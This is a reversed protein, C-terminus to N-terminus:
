QQWDSRGPSSRLVQINNPCARTDFETDSSATCGSHDCHSGPAGQQAMGDLPIQYRPGIGSEAVLHFRGPSCLPPNFRCM